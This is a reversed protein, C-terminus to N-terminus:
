CVVVKLNGLVKNKGYNLGNFFYSLIDHRLEKLQSDIYQWLHLVATLM